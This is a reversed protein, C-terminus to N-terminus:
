GLEVRLLESLRRMGVEVEETSDARLIVYGEGEYTSAKPQGPKPIKAQAILSGLEQRAEELGHVQTVRGDGQGRLFLAGVSWRRAPPEFREHVVVQAWDSYFDRGHALSILSTFQAGPPRAAVESLAISGDKREFWEMHTMGTVMGLADLAMPGAERIAAFEPGDIERPLIVCWQLWPHEMVELPTPYYRSISHFVHEGGISISDYSHERGQVFEELLLPDAASPPMSRLYSELEERTNVRFTNRAGAGAPPKVVLPLTESAFALAEDASTALAHRACPLGAARLADKMVAKDRFNTAEQRDMGRIKLRERVEALPEQLQELIGILRDVHGGLCARSLKRVAAELANADLPDQIREFGVLRSALDQPFERQDQQSIIALRLGPLSAAARVFRLTTEMGYPVVFIVHLPSEM